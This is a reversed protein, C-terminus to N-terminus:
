TRAVFSDAVQKSSYTRLPTNDSFSFQFVSARRPRLRVWTDKLEEVSFPAPIEPDFPDVDISFDAHQVELLKYGNAYVHIAKTKGALSANLVPLFYAQDIDRLALRPSFRIFQDHIYEAVVCPVPDQGISSSSGTKVLKLDEDDGFLNVTQGPQLHQEWQGGGIGHAIGPKVDRPMDTLDDRMRDAFDASGFLIGFIQHRPEKLHMYCFARYHGIEEASYVRELEFVVVLESLVHSAEQLFLLRDLTSQVQAFGTSIVSQIDDGWKAFFTAQEAESLPLGLYQFRTSFGDASDLVIRLRERDLVECHVIGEALATKVLVDKEGIPLNVNTFFVFCEPKPENKLARRLDAQFKEKVAKKHGNSDNAQNVFGVAGFTHYKKQYFAEIDRGGDPGGRPHRPTVQSFRHDIALVARCLQERKLQSTDLYSKLREDTEYTM